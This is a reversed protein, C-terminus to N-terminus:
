IRDAAGTHRHDMSGSLKGACDPICFSLSYFFDDGATSREAKSIFWLEVVHPSWSALVVMIVLTGKSSMSQLRRAWRGYQMAALLRTTDEWQKNHSIISEGANWIGKWGDKCAVIIVHSSPCERWFDECDHEAIM